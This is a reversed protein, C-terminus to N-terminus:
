FLFRLRKGGLWPVPVNEGAYGAKLLMPNHSRKQFKVCVTTRDLQVHATAHIFDRFITSFKATEYGHGIRQAFLRYLTSAMLTLVLDCNVKMAVTSSLADMHFFDIADAINNEIIMRRAYRQVLKAPSRKLQNTILITPADHGLDKVAIQRLKGRYGSLTIKEDLIRPTRYARAINELEIRRWASRPRQDIIDILKATRRRLTIFSIGLQNLRDLNAYTTLQSDFIIEEPYCGSKNRWFEAFAIIEDKMESKRLDCNVYCFARNATDNVV